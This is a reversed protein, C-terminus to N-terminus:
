FATRNQLPHTHETNRDRKKLDVVDRGEEFVASGEGEEGIGGMGRGIVSPPEGKVGGGGLREAPMAAEEKRKAEEEPPAEQTSDLSRFRATVLVLVSNEPVPM